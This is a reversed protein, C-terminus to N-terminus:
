QLFGPEVCDRTGPVLAKHKGKELHLAGFNSHSTRSLVARPCAKSSQQGLSQVVAPRTKLCIRCHLHLTHAWGEQLYTSDGVGNGDSCGGIGEGETQRQAGWWGLFSVELGPGGTVCSHCEGQTVAALACLVALVAQEAGVPLLEGPQPLRPSENWTRRKGWLCLPLGPCVTKGPKNVGQEWLAPPQALVFCSSPVCALDEVRPLPIRPGSDASWAERPARPCSAPDPTSGSSPDLGHHSVPTGLATTLAAPDSAKRAAPLPM